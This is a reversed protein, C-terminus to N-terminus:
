LLQNQPAIQEYTLTSNQAVVAKLNNCYDIELDTIQADPSHAIQELHNIIVESDPYYNLYEKVNKVFLRLNKKILPTTKLDFIQEKVRPPIHIGEANVLRKVFIASEGFFSSNGGDIKLNFEEFKDLLCKVVEHHEKADSSFAIVSGDYIRISNAALISSARECNFAINIQLIGELERQMIKAANKINPDMVTQEYTVTGKLSIKISNITKKFKFSLFLFDTYSILFDAYLILFDTYSILFKGIKFATKPRSDEDLRFQRVGDMLTIVTYFNSSRIGSLVVFKDPIVFPDDRIISNLRSYDINIADEDYDVTVPSSWKSISYSIFGRELPKELLSKIKEIDANNLNNFISIEAFHGTRM